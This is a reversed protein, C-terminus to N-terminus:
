SRLWYLVKKIGTLNQCGPEYRALKVAELLFTKGIDTRSVIGENTFHNYARRAEDSYELIREKRKSEKWTMVYDEMEKALADGEEPTDPVQYVKKMMVAAIVFLSNTASLFSQIDWLIWHKGDTLNPVMNANLAMLNRDVHVAFILLAELGLFFIALGMMHTLEERNLWFLGVAIVIQVGSFFLYHIKISEIAPMPMLWQVNIFHTLAYAALVYVSSYFLSNRGKIYNFVTTGVLLLVLILSLIFATNTSM